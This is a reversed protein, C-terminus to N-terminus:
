LVGIGFVREMTVPPFSIGAMSRVILWLVALGWADGLDGSTNLAELTVKEYHM